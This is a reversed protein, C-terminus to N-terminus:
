TACPESATPLPGIYACFGESFADIGLNDIKSSKPSITRLPVIQDALGGLFLM